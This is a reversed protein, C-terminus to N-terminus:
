VWAELNDIQVGPLTDAPTFGMIRGFFYLEAELALAVNEARRFGHGEGPFCLYSVPLGRGRLAAVLRESQNPPVVADDSGQFVIVPRSLRDLAHIPSRARYVDREAPYPGVLRDLYRSEFKHTDATLAELDSIGYYSAGVSFTDHFTLACLTTFGGASGGRIALRCGDVVGRAVLYRAGAVCDEVDAVGWRRDLLRRYARGYGSSGRYNVDLVAFGRSTWFQIRLDLATSASATPGGHLMVLLPPRAASPGVCAPNAPPYFFGHARQGEGTPFEVAEPSSVAEAALAAGPSSRVMGLAGSSLDLRVLALTSLPSGACFVATGAGVSLSAVETYPTDIPELTGTRVDIRGLRWRGRQAFACLIREASEFGFTSAAFVWPPAAFEANMPCVPVAAGDGDRYLNWWGSRDSAFYLTGDPSWTPQVVSEDAAGAVCRSGVIGGDADFEGALLETGDWPMNPHDWQLWALRCGDPSPRPAAYFDSGSVLVRPPAVADIDVAVITLAPERATTAHEERVALLRRRIPDVSLDGYRWPGAPTLPRPTRGPDVRYVRQDQDNVFLVVGGCVAFAGGGYENVRSRASFGPPLVDAARDAGGRVVVQRGGEGPRGEVWYLAGGDFRAQGLPSRLDVGGRAAATAATIASPWSGYPIVGRGPLGASVSNPPRRQSNVSTMYM